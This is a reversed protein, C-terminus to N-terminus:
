PGVDHLLARVAAMDGRPARGRADPRLAGRVDDRDYVLLHVVVYGQLADCRVQVSLADVREGKWGVTSGPEFSVGKDILALEAAKPDDCFLQLYIDSHRTASGHWVAGSLYPDFAQLREMWVLALERLVRLEQPQTDACFLAIYAEVARELTDNDPLATRAPLGLQRVARRKAAGWDQGEEVVMRAATAAIEEQLSDM